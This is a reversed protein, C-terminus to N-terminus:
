SLTGIRVATEGHSYHRRMRQAAKMIPIVLLALIQYLIFTTNFIGSSIWTSWYSAIVFLAVNNTRHGTSALVWRWLRWMLFLWLALGVLGIHLAVALFTNDIVIEEELFVRSGSILGVGFLLKQLGSETLLRYYRDWNIFRMLLSEDQLIISNRANALLLVQSFFVMATAILGYLFPLLPLIKQYVSAGSRRSLALLLMATTVSFTFQIYVNRTLTTFCAVSLVALGLFSLLKYVGSTKWCYYVLIPALFSLFYGYQLGSSFLSFSRINDYYGWASVIFYGDSSATPLLPSGLFYQAFGICILPVAAFLMLRTFHRSSFDIYTTFPLLLLFMYYSNYSLLLYDAPYDGLSLCFHGVLFLLFLFYPWRTIEPLLVTGRRYVHFLLATCLVSIILIKVFISPIPILGGFIAMQLQPLAGDVFSLIFFLMFFYGLVRKV